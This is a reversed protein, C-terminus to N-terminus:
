ERIDAIKHGCKRCVLDHEWFTRTDRSQMFNGFIITTKHRNTIRYDHDCRRFLNKIFKFM